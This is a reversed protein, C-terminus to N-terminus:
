FKWCSVILLQLGHLAQDVYFAWRKGGGFRAKWTDIAYHGLVLFAFQFASVSTAVNLALAICGAWIVSHALMLYPDKGKNLALYGGQLPFDGLFHAFVLWNWLTM